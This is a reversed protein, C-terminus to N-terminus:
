EGSVIGYMKRFEFPTYGTNKKFTAIFHSVDNYGVRYHIQQVDLYLNSILLEKAKNMRYNTLYTYASSGTFRHFLRSLYQPSIYVFSALAQVTIPENYKTEIEKIVPEVYQKYLPNKHLKNVKYINTFHLFFNYCETSLTIADLQQSTHTSILRDVWSKYYRGQNADIFLFPEKGIIKHVDDALSGEFTAFSTIWTDSKKAYAHPISPTILVGEGEKLVLETDSIKITGCGTTTQLWHYLPYGHDRRTPEQLWQNGITNLSLPLEYTVPRFYIPVANDGQKM